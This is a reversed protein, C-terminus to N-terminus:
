NKVCDKYQKQLNAREMNIKYLQSNLQATDISGQEYRLQWAEESQEYYTMIDNYYQCKEKKCSSLGVTLMFAAIFIILKKMKKKRILQHQLHVFIERVGIWGHM